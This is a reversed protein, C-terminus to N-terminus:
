DLLLKSETHSLEVIRRTFHENVFLAESCQLGHATMRPNIRDQAVNIIHLRKFIM